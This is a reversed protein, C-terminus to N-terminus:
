RVCSAGIMRCALPGSVLNMEGQSQWQAGPARVDVADRGADTVIAIRGERHSLVARIHLQNADPAFRFIKSKPAQCSKQFGSTIQGDPQNAAARICFNSKGHRCILVCPLSVRTTFLGRLRADRVMLGAAWGELRACRVACTRQRSLASRLILASHTAFRILVRVRPRFSNTM